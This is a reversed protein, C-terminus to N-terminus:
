ILAQILAARSVGGKENLVSQSAVLGCVESSLAVTRHRGTFNIDSLSEAIFSGFGGARLHDEVTVIREYSSIQSAIQPKLHEGWLPLSAMHYEDNPLTKYLDHALKLTAGTSLILCRARKENTNCWILRGATASIETTHVEPEGAKGM